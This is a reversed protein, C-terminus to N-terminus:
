ALKFIGMYIHDPHGFLHYDGEIDRVRLTTGPKHIACLHPHLDVQDDQVLGLRKAVFACAIAGTGCAWTEREIGREFCRYELTKGDPSPRLFNVNLGRPFLSPYDRNISMGIYHILQSAFDVKHKSSVDFGSRFAPDFLCNAVIEPFSSSPTLVVLHPEGTFVLYGGIDLRRLGNMERPAALRFTIRLDALRDLGAEGPIIADPHVLSPYVRRPPGMNTWNLTENERCTGISVMHPRPTPIETVIKTSFLGYRWNLYHSICTLGNGCSFAETGDPEFMRFILQPEVLPPLDDWYHRYANIEELIEKRYPQIILLNDSSVGFYPDTASYAFRSKEAENLIPGEVEDVIAFKNGCLVYKNFPIRKM